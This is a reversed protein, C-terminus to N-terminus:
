GPTTPIWNGHFGLPVRAPLHIAALPRGGFDQAALIVLDAAGREPNHVYALIYGDDEARAGERAVFVPEGVAAGRPFRHLERRGADLDHKILVNSFASDPLRAHDPVYARVFDEACCSYGFRHRRSVLADDLRPFELAREDIVQERIRGDHLDVSVRRLTPPGDAAPGYRRDPHFAPFGVYDMVVTTGDDYGNLVHSVFVRQMDFWRIAGGGRPLIGLRAPHDDNWAYPNPSHELAAPRFTVPTDCVVVYNRTLAFDHMMPKDGVPIRRLRAVTGSDDVVLHRVHDWQPNYTIAHMEGAAPDIKTHATFAGELTGGFTYPGVTSLEDTLEYPMPGSEELALTRGRFGIIHTNCAHDMPLAEGRAPEGLEAAVAASRIWRSRYWEARGDRIRVGHVMGPATVWYFAAPDDIGLANPGIRLYRGDLEAPIAGTVALDFSTVEAEVPTFAGSLFASDGAPPPAPVRIAPPQPRDTARGLLAGAGGGIALAAATSGLLM